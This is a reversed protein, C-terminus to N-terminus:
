RLVMAGQDKSSMGMAYMMRSDVLHFKITEQWRCDGTPNRRLMNPNKRYILFYIISNEVM